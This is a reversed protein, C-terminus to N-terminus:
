EFLIHAFNLLCNSLNSIGLTGSTTITHHQRHELRQTMVEGDGVARNRLQQVIAVDLLRMIIMKIFPENVRQFNLTLQCFGM